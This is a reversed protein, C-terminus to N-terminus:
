KFKSLMQTSEEYFLQQKRTQSFILLNCTNCQERFIIILSVVEDDNCKGRVIYNTKAGQRRRNCNYSFIHSKEPIKCNEIQEHKSFVNKKGSVSFPFQSFKVSSGIVYKELVSVLMLILPHISSSSQSALSAMSLAFFFSRVISSLDIYEIM